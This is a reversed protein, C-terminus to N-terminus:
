LGDKTQEYHPFLARMAVGGENRYHYGIIDRKQEWTLMRWIFKKVDIYSWRRRGENTFYGVRDILKITVQIPDGLIKATYMRQGAPLTEHGPFMEGQVYDVGYQLAAQKALATTFAAPNRHRDTRYSM